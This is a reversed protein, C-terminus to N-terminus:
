KKRVKAWYAKWYSKVVRKNQEYIKQLRNHSEFAREGLMPDGLKESCLQIYRDRWIGHLEFSTRPIKIVVLNRLYQIKDKKLGAEYGNVAPQLNKRQIEARMIGPPDFNLAAGAQAYEDDRDSGLPSVQLGVGWNELAYGEEKTGKTLFDMMHNYGGGRSIVIWQEPDKKDKPDRADGQYQPIFGRITAYNRSELTCYAREYNARWDKAAQFLVKGIDELNSEKDYLLARLVEILPSAAMRIQTIKQRKYASSFLVYSLYTLSERDELYVLRDVWKKLQTLSMNAKNATEDGNWRTGDYPAKDVKVPNDNEVIETREMVKNEVIKRAVKIRKRVIRLKNIAEKESKEHVRERSACLEEKFDIKKCEKRVIQGPPLPPPAPYLRNFDNLMDPRNQRVEAVLADRIQIALQMKKHDASKKERLIGLALSASAIAIAFSGIYSTSIVLSTLFVVTTLITKTKTQSHSNTLLEYIMKGEFFGSGIAFFISATPIIKSIIPTEKNLINIM